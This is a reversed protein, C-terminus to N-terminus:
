HVKVLVSTTEALGGKTFRSGGSTIGTMKPVTIIDKTLVNSIKKAIDPTQSHIVSILASTMVSTM